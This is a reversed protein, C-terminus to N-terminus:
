PEFRPKALPSKDLWRWVTLASSSHSQHLASRKRWERSFLRLADRKARLIVGPRGRLSYRCLAALSILLHLPGLALLLPAPMNKIFTLTMNRHGYYAALDSGAAASTGGIHHALAHNAQEFRWGSLRLRFALDVDEFFCFYDEDFGNAQEFASSRYLAVAGCPGFSASRRPSATLTSVPQGHGIRRARGSVFYTDGLGDIQNGADTLQTCGVAAVDASQELVALMETLCGAQLQADPNLLLLFDTSGALRAAANNGGAFGLNADHRHVTLGSPFKQVLRDLVPQADQESHNDWVIIQDDAGCQELASAVADFLENGPNWTVILVTVRHHSPKPEEPHM